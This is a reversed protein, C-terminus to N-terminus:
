LPCFSSTGTLATGQYSSGVPLQLLNCGVAYAIISNDNLDQAQQLTAVQSTQAPTLQTFAADRLQNSKDTIAQGIRAIEAYQQGLIVPDVNGAAMLAAVQQKLDALRNQQRTYFDNYAASASYLAAVQADTLGLYERVSIPFIQSGCFSGTPAPAVYPLASSPYFQFSKPNYFQTTSFWHSPRIKILYSCNADNALPQLVAAAALSQLTGVQAATLQAAVQQQLAAQKSVEDRRITELQVAFNGLAQPDPAPTTLLTSLQKNISDVQQQQSSWYQNYTRNLAVITTAQTNSLNLYQRLTTQGVCSGALLALFALKVLV